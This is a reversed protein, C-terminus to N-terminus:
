APPRESPTEGFVDPTRPHSGARRGEGLRSGARRAVVYLPRRKTEGFVRGVYVGLIGISLLQVGGLVLIAVLVSTWGEVVSHPDLIRNVLIWLLYLFAGVTIFAGLQAAIVLPRGSFSALGDLALKMMKRMSYKTTGAFREDREYALAEQRFGAWAVMGRLYRTEERMGRLVDAVARDLLRFDGADVPLDTDSLWGIARYFAKATGRKFASEGRRAVRAGYVVDVGSRWREIMGPIVEPPDQLDGDILVVADGTAHDLGATIAAQHGFNRSLGVINVRPDVAALGLLLDLSDDVSGDDVFVFEADVDLLADFVAALRQHMELVIANENYVPVVVSVLQREAQSPMASGSDAESSM